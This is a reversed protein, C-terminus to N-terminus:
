LLKRSNALRLRWQLFYKKHEHLITAWFWLWRDYSTLRFFHSFGLSQAKTRNWTTQGQIFKSMSVSNALRQNAKRVSVLQLIKVYSHLWVWRLPAGVRLHLIDFVTRRGAKCLITPELSSSGFSCSPQLEWFQHFGPLFTWLTRLM